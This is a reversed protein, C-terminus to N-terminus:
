KKWDIFFDEVKSKISEDKRKLYENAAASLILIIGISLLYIWWDISLWFRRTMYLAIFLVSASSLAFWRKRKKLFSIIMLAICASVLIESDLIEYSRFADYILHLISIIATIFTIMDTIDEYGQWLKKIFICFFLIILINYECILIVPIETIQQNYLALCLFIFSITKIFRHITESEAHSFYIYVYGTLMLWAPSIWENNRSICSLIMIVPLVGSILALWEACESQPFFKTKIIRGAFISSIFLIFIFLPMSGNDFTLNENALSYALCYMTSVSIVASINCSDSIFSYLYVYATVAFWFIYYIETNIFTNDTYKISYPNAIRLVATYSLSIIFLINSYIYLPQLLQNKKNKKNIIFYVIMFASAIVAIIMASHHYNMDATSLIGLTASIMSSYIYFLSHKKMQYKNSIYAKVISFIMLLFFYPFARDYFNLFALPYIWIEIGQSMMHIDFKKFRLLPIIGACVLVIIFFIRFSMILFQNHINLCDTIRYISIFLAPIICYSSIASRIKASNDLSILILIFALCLSGTVAGTVYETEYHTSITITKIFCVLTFLIDSVPTRLIKFTYYLFFLFAIMIFGSQENGNFALVNINEILIASIFPQIIIAPIDKYKLALWLSNLFIIGISIILSISAESNIVIASVNLIICVYSLKKLAKQLFESIFNMESLVVSILSLLCFIWIIENVNDQYSIGSLALTMYIAFPFVGLFKIKQNFIKRLFIFAFATLSISNLKDNYFLSIISLFVTNIVVFKDMATKYASFIEPYKIRKGALMVAITYIVLVLSSCINSFLMNSIFIVAGTMGSLSIMAYVESKYKMAGALFTFFLSIFSVAFVPNGSYQSFSFWSGFLEFFGSAIVGIPIFISGLTFFTKGTSELQLKKEATFSIIWFLIGASFVTVTKLSDSMVSWNTTSFIIGALVIFITGIIIIVNVANGQSTKQNTNFIQKSEPINDTHLSPNKQNDFENEVINETQINESIDASNDNHNVTREYNTIYSNLNNKLKKYKIYLVITAPIFIFPLIFWIVILFIFM